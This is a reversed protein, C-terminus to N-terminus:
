VPVAVCVAVSEPVAVLLAVNVGVPVPVGEEVTLPPEEATDALGVASSVGPALAEADAVGIADSEAPALAELVPEGDPVGVGDSVAIATAGRPPTSAVAGHAIRKAFARCVPTVEAEGASAAAGARAHDCGV